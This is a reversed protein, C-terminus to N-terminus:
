SQVIAIQKGVPTKKSEAETSAGGIEDTNSRKKGYLM